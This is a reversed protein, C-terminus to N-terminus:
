SCGKETVLYDVPMDYHARPLTPYLQESTLISLTIGSFVVLFRDYFGGRSRMHSTSEDLHVSAYATNELGYREAFFDKASEFFNRTEAEDM